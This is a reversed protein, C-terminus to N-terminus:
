PSKCCGLTRGQNRLICRNGPGRMAEEPCGSQPHSHEGRNEMSPGWILVQAGVQLRWVPPLAALPQTPPESLPLPALLQSSTEQPHPHGGSSGAWSVSVARGRPSATTVAGPLPCAGEGGPSDSRGRRPVSFPESVYIVSASGPQYLCPGFLLQACGARSPCPPPGLSCPGAQPVGHAHGGSSPAPAPPAQTAFLEAGWSRNRDLRRPRRPPRPSSSKGWSGLSDSQSM